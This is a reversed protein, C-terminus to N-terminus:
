HYINLHRFFGFSGPLSQFGNFSSGALSAPISTLDHMRKVFLNVHNVFAVKLSDITRFIYPIINEKM